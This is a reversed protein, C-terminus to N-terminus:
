KITDFVNIINSAISKKDLLKRYKEGYELALKQYDKYNNEAEIIKNCYSIIDPESIFEKPAFEFATKNHSCMFCPNGVAVSEFFQLGLGESFSPLLMYKCSYYFDSLEQESLLGRYDSQFYPNEPGAVQIKISPNLRQVAQGALRFNKNPDSARGTYGFIFTKRGLNSPNYVDKIPNYIVESDLNFYKKIDKQVTKSITVIKDALLLKQKTQFIWENFNNIHVPCDLLCLILKGGFRERYNIAEEYYGADNCYILDPKHGPYVINHGLEMLGLEIRGVQALPSRSGLCYINM